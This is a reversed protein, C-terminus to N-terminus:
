SRSEVRVGSAHPKVRMVEGGKQTLAAEVTAREEALAVMCDGGGAGSLKAGFAENEMAADILNDLEQSSVELQALLSQNQTMLEGATQWDEDMLATRALETLKEIQQFVAEIEEPHQRKKEAVSRVLTGTDAKIGTYGVVLPIEEAALPEVVSAPTKYYITGGWIASAIDFGSGVGQVALVAQYCLHFLEFNDLEVQYLECLAKGFAVTVASSSGFGFNSSFESQTTVSVGESQPFGELFLYFLAQLFAVGKPTDGAKLEAFTRTYNDVGVDPAQVTFTAVDVKTVTVNIREDIATVICPYGYVVAHDGFLMLKGPASTTVQSLKELM